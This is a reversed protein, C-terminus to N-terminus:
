PTDWKGISEIVMPETAKLAARLAVLPDDTDISFSCDGWHTTLWWRFPEKWWLVGGALDLGVRRALEDLALLFTARDRLDPPSAYEACLGNPYLVADETVVRAGDELLMGPVLKMM